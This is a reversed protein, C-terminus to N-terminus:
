EAVSDNFRIPLNWPSLTFGQISLRLRLSLRYRTEGVSDNLASVDRLLSGDDKLAESSPAPLM